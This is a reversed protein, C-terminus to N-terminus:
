NFLMFCNIDFRFPMNADLAIANLADIEETTYTAVVGSIMLDWQSQLLPYDLPALEKGAAGLSVALNEVLGRADQEVTNARINLYTANAFVSRNFRGWDQKPAIPIPSNADLEAQLEPLSFPQNYDRGSIFEKLNREGDEWYFVQIPKGPFIQVRDIERAM